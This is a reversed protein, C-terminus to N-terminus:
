KLTFVVSVTVMVEKEITSTDYAGYDSIETSYVPLVQVVGSTASKISRIERGSGKAIQEARLKADKVAESLLSIRLEPLKSYYYELSNTSFIVGQDIIKQTNKAISTIKEVDSSKIEVNQRLIYERPAYPDYLY